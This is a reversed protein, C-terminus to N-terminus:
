FFYWWNGKHAVIAGGHGDLVAFMAADQTPHKYIIHADEMSDRWGQMNSVAFNVDFAKVHVTGVESIKERNPRWGPLGSDQSPSLASHISSIIKVVGYILVYFLGLYVFMEIYRGTFSLGFLWDSAFVAFCISWIITSPWKLFEVVSYMKNTTSTQMNNNLSSVTQISRKNELPLAIPPM